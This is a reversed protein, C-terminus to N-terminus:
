VLPHFECIRLLNLHGLICGSHFIDKDTNQKECREDTKRLVLLNNKVLVWSPVLNRFHQWKRQCGFSVGENLKLRPIPKLIILFTKSEDKRDAMLAAHKVFSSVM